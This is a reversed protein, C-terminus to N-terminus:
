DGTLKAKYAKYVLNEFFSAEHMDIFMLSSHKVTTHCFLIGNQLMWREFILEERTASKNSTGWKISLLIM